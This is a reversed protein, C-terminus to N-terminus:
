CINVRNNNLSVVLIGGHSQIRALEQFGEHDGDGHANGM